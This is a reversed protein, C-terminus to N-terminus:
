HKSHKSIIKKVSHKAFLLFRQKTIKNSKEQAKSKAPVGVDVNMIEGSAPPIAHGEICQYVFVPLDSAIAAM